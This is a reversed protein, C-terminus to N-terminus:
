PSLHFCSFHVHLFKFIYESSLSHQAQLSSSSYVSFWPFKKKKKKKIFALSQSMKLSPTTVLAESNLSFLLFHGKSELSMLLLSLNNNFSFVGPNKAGLPSSNLRPGSVLSSQESSKHLSTINFYLLYLFNRIHADSPPLFLVGRSTKLQILSLFAKRLLWHLSISSFLLIPFVLSRKLFILFVLSCKM